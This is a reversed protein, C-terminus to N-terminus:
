GSKTSETSSAISEQIGEMMEELDLNDSSVAGDSKEEQVVPIEKQATESGIMPKVEGLPKEQVSSSVSSSSVPAPPSRKQADQLKALEKIPNESVSEKERAARPPPSFAKERKLIHIPTRIVKHPGPPFYKQDKIQPKKPREM